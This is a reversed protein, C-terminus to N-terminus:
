DITIDSSSSLTTAMTAIWDITLEPLSERGVVEASRRAWTTAKLTGVPRRGPEDELMRNLSVSWDRNSDM